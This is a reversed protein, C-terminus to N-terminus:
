DSESLYIQTYGIDNQLNKKIMLQSPTILKLYELYIILLLLLLLLELMLVTLM